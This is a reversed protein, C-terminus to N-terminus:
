LLIVAIEGWQKNIVLVNGNLDSSSCLVLCLAVLPTASVVHFEKRFSWETFLFSQCGTPKHCSQGILNFTTGNDSQRPVYALVHCPFDKKVGTSLEFQILAWDCWPYEKGRFNPHCRICIMKQKRTATTNQAASLGARGENMLTPPAMSSYSSCRFTTRWIFPHEQKRPSSSKEFWVMM